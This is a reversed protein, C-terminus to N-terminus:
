RNRRYWGGAVVAAGALCLLVSSPEPVNSNSNPAIGAVTIEMAGIYAFNGSIVTQDFFIQGFADPQMGVIEIVIDDNGDYSGDSGIDPGSTQLIASQENAGILRYETERVDTTNRTGFIRFDYLHDKNLGTLMFGGATDDDGGGQVGDGTSFFYDVTASEVALDGLLSPDPSFLGGNLKGNNNFQATITLGVGTDEGDTNILNGMHEGPLINAGGNISYWNNWHNGNTDPSTTAVGNTGDNAGFDFMIREGVTLATNPTYVKDPAMVAEVQPRVISTWLDYGDRNLHISDVFKNQFDTGSYAGLADFSAPLDIYHAHEHTSAYLQIDANAVDEKARNSERGPTPMIGLFFIDVNPDATHIANVFGLYDDAVELGSDGAALDNTGAWVVVASPNHKIVLDDVQVNVDDFQAGGIGRQIVNYDAFDRTVQEWRRISSSGVFVIGGEPLPDAADQSNWRNVENQYPQADVQDAAVLTTAAVAAVLLTQRLRRLRSGVMLVAAAGGLLVLSSPEPVQTANIEMVNIYAYNGQVVSVLLTIENNADPTIGSIEVINDNNGDYSTGIGPGSSLMTVFEVTNGGIASYRTERLSTTQRSGFFRFSYVSEPDLGTLLLGGPDNPSSTNQNQEVFFYDETATGIAFDGLLSPNPSLLGGTNRGNARFNGGDVGFPQISMGTAANAVDVLAVPTYSSAVQFDNSSVNNWYNGNTDPGITESGDTGNSRGFDILMRSADANASFCSFLLVLCGIASVGSLNYNKM